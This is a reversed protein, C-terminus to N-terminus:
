GDRPVRSWKLGGTPDAVRLRVSWDATAALELVVRNWGPRLEVSIERQGAQEAGSESSSVALGGVWLQYADDTRLLLTAPRLDPSWLFTQAYASAHEVGPFLRAFSLEGSPPVDIPLWALRASADGAKAGPRAYDPAAPDLEPPWVYHIPSAIQESAPYRWPGVVQWQDAVPSLSRLYVAAPLPVGSGRAALDLDLTRSRGLVAVTDVVVGPLLDGPEAGAPSVDLSRAPRKSGGVKVTPSAAGPSAEPYVVVEYLDARPAYVGLRLSGAGTSVVQLEDRTRADPPILVDPARRESPFPLPPFPDHPESQYWYAVTAFDAADRNAQGRELEVRLSARFPIPDPLHWRYASLRARATDRLTVGAFPGSSGAAAPATVAGAAGDVTGSGTGLYGSTAIGAYTRGDVRFIGKGDLFSLTGEYGQASLSTGVFWGAGRIDAVLHRASSRPKADRSWFAHLTAVPTALLAGTQIDADFALGEIPQGTGNELVIRAHRAFPMPLYSYFGNATGMPVSAYPRREFGEAFFDGLPVEVSPASEGDWYMRLAIRRLWHPDASSLNLRIRRIVAPGPLDLLVASDGDALRRVGTSDPFRILDLLGDPEGPARLLRDFGGFATATPSEVPVPGAPPRDLHLRERLQACATLLPLLVLLARAHPTRM